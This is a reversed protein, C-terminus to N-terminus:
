NQRPHTVGQSSALRDKLPFCLNCLLRSRGWGSIMRMPVPSSMSGPACLQVAYLRSVIMRNSQKYQQKMNDM